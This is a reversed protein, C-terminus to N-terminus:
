VLAQTLHISAGSLLHLGKAVTMLAHSIGLRLSEDARFRAQSSRTETAEVFPREARGARETAILVITSSASGM